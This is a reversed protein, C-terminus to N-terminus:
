GCRFNILAIYINLLNIIVLPLFFLQDMLLLPFFLKGENTLLRDNISLEELGICEIERSTLFQL